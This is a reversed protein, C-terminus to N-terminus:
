WSNEQIKFGEELRSKPFMCSEDVECLVFLSFMEILPNYNFMVNMFTQRTEHAQTTNPIVEIGRTAFENTARGIKNSCRSQQFEVVTCKKASLNALECRLSKYFIQFSTNVSNEYTDDKFWTLADISCELLLLLILKM